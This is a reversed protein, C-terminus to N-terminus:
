PVPGSTRVERPYSTSWAEQRAAGQSGSGFGTHGGCASARSGSGCGEWACPAADAKMFKTGPQRELAQADAKAQPAMLELDSGDPFSVLAMETAGNSHPSGYVTEIGIASLNGELQKLNSGAATVHDIKLEAAPLAVACLALVLSFRM